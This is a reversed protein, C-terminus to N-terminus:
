QGLRAKLRRINERYTDDERLLQEPAAGVHTGRGRVGRAALPHRAAGARGCGLHTWPSGELVAVGGFDLFEVDGGDAHLAPRISELVAEIRDRTTATM